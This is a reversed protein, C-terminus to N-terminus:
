TFIFGDGKQQILEPFLPQQILETVLPQQILGTVLPQPDGHFIRGLGRGLGTYIQEAETVRYMGMDIRGRAGVVRYPDPPIPSIPWKEGLMRLIEWKRIEEAVIKGIEGIEAEWDPRARLEELELQFEAKGPIRQAGMAAPIERPDPIQM